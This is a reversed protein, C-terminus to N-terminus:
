PANLVAACEGPLKAVTFPPLPKPPKPAPQPFLIAPQFWYDLEKGCGEGPVVDRQPRCSREGGCGIRVHMHYDHGWNPRVKQLWSRDGKAQRCIARKIAPNVLVREVEPDTAVAKIAGLTDPTWYGNMDIRNPAVVMSSMITERQAMPIEQPPMQRLWIDADLGIQHSGHGGLMPGGRPQSMDGILLGPWNTQAAVKKSVRQIMAILRRRGYFRNRGPRMVQWTPGTMPLAVAGSLCGNSYFGISRDPGANPRQVRGFLEKAPTMPTAVMPPLTFGAPRVDQARAFGASVASIFLAAVLLRMPIM